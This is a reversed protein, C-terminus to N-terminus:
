LIHDTTTNNYLGNLEDFLPPAVQGSSVTTLVVGLAVDDVCEGQLRLPLTLAGNSEFSLYHGKKWNRLILSVWNHQQEEKTETECM